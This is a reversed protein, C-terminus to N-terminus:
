PWSPEVSPTIVLERVECGTPRSLAYLVADAVNAPDNLMASPGPRYQETRGDFFATDMGGPLLLTVGVEGALETALARTLGVVGFKSACYASADSLARLGLTSAVTVVRGRSAQLAPLAARVVAATGLLNVQVVRDWEAGPVDVMRGCADTGAAAVVADLGEVALARVADEAARPEALDVIVTPADELGPAASTRPEVRDLLLPSGGAAAVACAVARGLGSAAGTVLVRGLPRVTRREVAGLQEHDTVTM